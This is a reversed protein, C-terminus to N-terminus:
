LHQVDCKEKNKMGKTRLRQIMIKRQTKRKQYIKEWYHFTEQPIDEAVMQPYQTSNPGMYTAGAAAASTKLPM